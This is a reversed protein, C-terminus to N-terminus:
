QVQVNGTGVPSKIATLGVGFVADISGSLCTLNSENLSASLLEFNRFDNYTSAEHQSRPINTKICQIGFRNQLPFRTVVKVEELHDLKILNELVTDGIGLYIGQRDARVGPRLGPTLKRSGSPRAYASLASCVSLTAHCCDGRTDLGRASRVHSPLKHTTTGLAPAVEFCFVYFARGNLCQCNMRWEGSAAIVFLCVARRILM